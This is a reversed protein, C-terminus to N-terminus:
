QKSVQIIQFGDSSGEEHDPRQGSDERSQVELGEVLQELADVLHHVSRLAEQVRHYVHARPAALDRDDSLARDVAARLDYALEVLPHSPPRRPDRM